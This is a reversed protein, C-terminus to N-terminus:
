TFAELSLCVCTCIGEEAFCIELFWTHALNLEVFFMKGNWLNRVHLWFIRERCFECGVWVHVSEWQQPYGCLVGRTTEEEVDCFGVLTLLSIIDPLCKIAGCSRVQHVKIPNEQMNGIINFSMHVKQHYDASLSDKVPDPYQLRFATYCTVM